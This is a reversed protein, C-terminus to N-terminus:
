VISNVTWFTSCKKLKKLFVNEPVSKTIFMSSFVSVKDVLYLLGMVPM